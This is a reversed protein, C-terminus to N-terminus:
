FTIGEDIDAGLYLNWGRRIKIINEFRYEVVEGNFGHEIIISSEGVGLFKGDTSTEGPRVNVSESDFFDVCIHEGINLHMNEIGQRVREIKSIKEEEKMEESAKKQNQM